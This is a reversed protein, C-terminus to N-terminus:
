GQLRKRIADGRRVVGGTVVRANIGRLNLSRGAATNLWRSAASGFRATFKDCGTHPAVSVELVATGVALQTGAPLNELGLDLDVYLQDGAIPWHELEGALAAIARSSMLTLQREPDPSGDTTRRSPRMHWNDGVLGLVRDLSAEDVVEREGYTPRRTILEVVGAERPAGRIADLAAELEQESRFRIEQM